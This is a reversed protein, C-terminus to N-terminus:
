ALAESYPMSVLSYKRGAENNHLNMLARSSSASKGRERADVFSQSFAVGYAINDSCGSWQFGDPSSGRVTRDCGCKELEGSSCGRTVAHAVGASAIAYVFAGERTGQNVLRGFIHPGRHITSCNWRRQRFQHQCETIALGAGRRVSEMVEGHRKCLQLQRSTIGVLQECGAAEVHVSALSSLRSLALWNSPSVVAATLLVLLTTATRSDEM